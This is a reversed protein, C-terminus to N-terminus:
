NQDENNLIDILKSYKINGVKFGLQILKQQLLAKSFKNYNEKKIKIAEEILDKEIDM